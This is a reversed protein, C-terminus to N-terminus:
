RLSASFSAKSASCAANISDKAAGHARSWYVTTPLWPEANRSFVQQGTLM